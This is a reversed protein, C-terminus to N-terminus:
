NVTSSNATALCDPTPPDDSEGKAEKAPEDMSPGPSPKDVVIAGCNKLSRILKTVRTKSMGTFGQIQEVTAPTDCANLAAIAGRVECEQEDLPRIRYATPM